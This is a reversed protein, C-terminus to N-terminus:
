RVYIPVYLSGGNRDKVEAFSSGVRVNMQTLATVFGPADGAYLTTSSADTIWCCQTDKAGTAVFGDPRDDRGSGTLWFSVVSGRPAPNNAQNVSGDANTVALVSLASAEARVTIPPTRDTRISVLAGPQIGNPVIVNMQTRSAYLVPAPLDGFWVHTGALETPIRGSADVQFTAAQEPGIDVGFLSVIQNPAVSLTGTLASGGTLAMIGPISTTAMPRLASVLGNTSGIRLVGASDIRCFAAWGAAFWRTNTLTRGMSDLSGVFSSTGSAGSVWLNGSADPSISSIADNVDRSGLYTAWHMATGTANLKAVFGDRAGQDYPRPYIPGSFVPQLTGPTSPFNEDRTRGALIPNGDRDLVLDIVETAPNTAPTVPDNRSTLYTSYLM